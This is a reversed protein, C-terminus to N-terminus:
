TADPVADLRSTIADLSTRQTNVIERLTEQQADSLPEGKATVNARLRDDNEKIQRRLREIEAEDKKTIRKQRTAM